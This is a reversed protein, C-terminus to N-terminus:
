QIEKTRGYRDDFRIIDDEGLYSGTQVEILELPVMGPNELSHIEGIPIYTSQNETLLSVVDANKVRATGSVIVWHEARHHHMQTSLKEGPKVTIKKVQYRGGVDISQYKGWPRFVESHVNVEKRNKSLLINVIEKVDQANNKNAILLADPTDIIILDEVGVATVLRDGSKILCNKTNHIVVDGQLINGNKDTQMIDWMASWSGVDNWISPLRVVVANKTKEMVANDISISEMSSFDAEGLRFFGLDSIANDVSKESLLLINPCYNRMEELLSDVRFMFMGSNWLYKGSKCYEEAIEKSPKEVFEVVKSVQDKSASKIYGYGTEAYDPEIGFTVMSGSEAYTSAKLVKESFIDIDKIIHDSALVFMIGKPDNKYIRWAAVAIAAATNRAVPELIISSVKKAYQKCQDSVLFRHDQNCVISVPGVDKISLARDITEQLMTKGNDFIDICQKPFQSRSMPWLRSGVGGALVVPYIM